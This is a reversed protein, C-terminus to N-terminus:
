ISGPPSGSSLEGGSAGGDPGKAPDRSPGRTATAPDQLPLITAAPWVPVAAENAVYVKRTGPPAVVGIPKAGVSLTRLLAGSRADYAAVTDLTQNTVWVTGRSGPWGQGGGLPAMMLACGTTAALLGLLRQRTWARAGTANAHWRRM